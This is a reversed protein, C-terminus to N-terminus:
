RGAIAAREHGPAGGQPTAFLQDAPVLALTVLLALHAVFGVLLSGRAEMTADGNGLFALLRPLGVLSLLGGGVLYALVLGQILSGSAAIAFAALAGMVLGAREPTM